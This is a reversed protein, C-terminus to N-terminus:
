KSKSNTNRDHKEAQKDKRLRAWWFVRKILSNIQSNYLLYNSPKM